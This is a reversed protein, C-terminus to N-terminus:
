NDFKVFRGPNINDIEGQDILMQGAIIVYVLGESTLKPDMYSANDKLEDPDFVVLDAYYGEAILGRKKLGYVKAPLSTIRRVGEELSMINDELVYKSLFREYTGFLRPHPRDFAPIGDSVIMCYTRKMASILDDESATFLLIMSQGNEAILLDMLFDIPDQKSLEALENLYRGEFEPHNRTSLVMISDMGGALCLNEWDDRSQIWDRVEERVEKNQIRKSMEEVGGSLVWPPLLSRLMTNGATYPYVDIFINQGHSNASDIMELSKQLKGWNKRGVAKHHSIVLSAGSQLGVQIMEDVSDLLHFTENRIHSTVPRNYEAAVKALEILEDIDAFLGPPYMLGLSLGVAGADFANKLLAKMEELESSNPKRNEFGMTAIRLSGHGVLSGVNSLLGNEEIKKSLSKLGSWNWDLQYPGTLPDFYEQLDNKYKDVKPFVSLGCNGLIETTVGQSVKGIFPQKSDIIYGEAHTHGDIFGPSIALGKLDFESKSSKIKEQSIFVIQDGTIGINGIYPTKGSGDYILGNLLMLDIM